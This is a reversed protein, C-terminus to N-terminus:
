LISEDMFRTRIVSTQPFREFCSERLTLCVQLAFVRNRELQIYKVPLKLELIENIGFEINDTILTRDKSDGLYLNATGSLPSIALSYGDPVLFDFVIHSAVPPYEKFRVSLYINEEDYGIMVYRIFVNSFNGVEIQHKQADYIAAGHWETFESHFGDVDPYILGTVPISKFIYSSDNKLNYFLTKPPKEILEEYCAILRSRFIEDYFIDWRTEQDSYWEFWEAGLIRNLSERAKKLNSHSMEGKDEVQLIFEYTKSIADWARNAAPSGIWKDYNEKYKRNLSNMQRLPRKGKELYDNLRITEFQDSTNLFGYIKDLLETGQGAYRNWLVDGPLAITVVADDMDRGSDKIEQYVDELHERFLHFSELASKYTFTTKFLETFRDNKIFCTLHYKNNESFVVPFYEEVGSMESIHDAKVVTWDYRLKSVLQLSKTNLVFDKLIIGSSAQNFEKKLRKRADILQQQAEQFGEFRNLPLSKETKISHNDIIVPLVPNYYPTTSIEIQGREVESAYLHFFCKHLLELYAFLKFKDEETFYKHKNLLTQVIAEKQSKNGIWALNHWVQLDRYEEVSFSTTMDEIYGKESLSVKKEYLELYRKYPFIISENEGKFFHSLIFEKEHSELEEAPKRSLYWTYDSATGDMYDALQDLLAPVINFNLKINSHETMIKLMDVYDRQLHQRIVPLTYNGNLDKLYPQSYQWIFAIKLKSM